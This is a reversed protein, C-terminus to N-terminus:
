WLDESYLKPPHKLQTIQGAAIAIDAAEERSVFRDDSLVFGQGKSYPPKVIHQELMMQLVQWHRNPRPLTFVKGNELQIAATEVQIKGVPMQEM